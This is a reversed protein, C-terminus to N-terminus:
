IEGKPRHLEFAERLIRWVTGDAFATLVSYGEMNEVHVAYPATNSETLTNGEVEVEFSRRLRGTRDQWPGVRKDYAVIRPGADGLTKAAIRDPDLAEDLRTLYDDLNDSYAM